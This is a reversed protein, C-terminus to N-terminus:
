EGETRPMSLIKFVNRFVTCSDCGEKKPKRLNGFLKNLEVKTWQANLKRLKMEFLYREMGRRYDCKECKKLVSKQAENYKKELEEVTTM